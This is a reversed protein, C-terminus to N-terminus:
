WRERRQMYDALAVGVTVRDRANFWDMSAAIAEHSYIRPNKVIKQWQEERFAYEQEDTIKVKPNM